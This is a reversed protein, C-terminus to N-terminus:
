RGGIEIKYEGKPLAKHIRCETDKFKDGEKLPNTFLYTDGVVYGDKDYVKVKIACSSSKDPGGYGYVKEGSFYLSVDYM